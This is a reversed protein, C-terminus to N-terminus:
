KKLLKKMKENLRNKLNNTEELDVVYRSNIYNIVDGEKATLPLENKLIILNKGDECELVAHNGEIRDLVYRM